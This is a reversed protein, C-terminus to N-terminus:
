AGSGGQEQSKGEEAQGPGLLHTGEGGHGQGAHKGVSHEPGLVQVLQSSVGVFVKYAVWSAPHHPSPLFPQIGWEGGRGGWM